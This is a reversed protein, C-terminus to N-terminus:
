LHPILCSSQTERSILEFLALLNTEHSLSVVPGKDSVFKGCSFFWAEKDVFGTDRQAFMVPYGEVCRTLASPEADGGALSEVNLLDIRGGIRNEEAWFLREELACAGYRIKVEEYWSESL